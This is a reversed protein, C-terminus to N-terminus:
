VEWKLEAVVAVHFAGVSEGRGCSLRLEGLGIPRLAEAVPVVLLVAEDHFQVALLKVRFLLATLVPSAVVLGDSCSACGEAIAPGVDGASGAFHLYERTSPLTEVWTWGHRLPNGGPTSSEASAGALPTETVDHAYPFM